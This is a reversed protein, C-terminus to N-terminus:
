LEEFDMEFSRGEELKQFMTDPKTPVPKAPLVAPVAPVAPVPASYAQMAAVMYEDLIKKEDTKLNAKNAIPWPQPQAQTWITPPTPGTIETHTIVIGHAQCYTTIEQLNEPFTLLEGNFSEPSSRDFGCEASKLVTNPITSEIKTLSELDQTVVQITVESYSM